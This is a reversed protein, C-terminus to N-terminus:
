AYAIRSEGLFVQLCDKHYPKLIFDKIIAYRKLVKKVLETDLSSSTLYVEFMSQLETPLQEFFDLFNWTWEPPIHLDLLIVFKQTDKILSFNLSNVFDITRAVSVFALTDVSPYKLLILKKVIFSDLVSDDIIIVTTNITEM